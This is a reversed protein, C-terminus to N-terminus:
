GDQRGGPRWTSTDNAPPRPPRQPPPRPPRPYIPRGVPWAGGYGTSQPYQVVPPAATRQRDRRADLNEDLAQRIARMREETAEINFPDSGPEDAASATIALEVTEVETVGAQPPTDSFHIVGDTDVWRYIDQARAGSAGM